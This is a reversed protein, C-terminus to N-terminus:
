EYTLARVPDQRAARYAPYLAGLTGGALGLACARVLDRPTMAVQLTPFAVLIAKRMLASVIVGFVIGLFCIMVSEKLIMGVIFVRSAGMAKLIGIERTREFITTYMALLIVIFSLLMSVFVVTFNLEKFGPMRTDALMSAPDKTSIISYSPLTEKLRAYVEEVSQNPAAKIFMITAKDPTGNIEQLTALPVFVRVVATPRCIGTVVFAHNLLTMQKGPALHHSRAYLADVIAENGALSERGSILRLRGPLRNYTALDIGFVLNFESSSFKFLVPVVIEVGPVERLKDALGVPFTGSTMAYFISAGSPQLIFDAGVDINRQLYDNLTGSVIGGLILMLVVGVAVAVISIVTRTPRSRINAAIMNEM